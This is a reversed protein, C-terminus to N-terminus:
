EDNYYDDEDEDDEDEDNSLSEEEKSSMMNKIEDKMVINEDDSESETNDFEELDSIDDENNIDVKSLRVNNSLEEQAVTDGSLLCVYNFFLLYFFNRFVFM